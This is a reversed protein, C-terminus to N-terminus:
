ESAEYASTVSDAPHHPRATGHGSVATFLVDTM